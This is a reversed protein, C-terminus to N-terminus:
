GTAAIVDRMVHRIIRRTAILIKVIGRSDDIASIKPLSALCLCSSNVVVALQKKSQRSKLDSGKHTTGWIRLQSKQKRNGSPKGCTRLQLKLM